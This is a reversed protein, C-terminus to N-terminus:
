MEQEINMIGKEPEPKDLNPILFLILLGAHFFTYGEHLKTGEEPVKTNCFEKV